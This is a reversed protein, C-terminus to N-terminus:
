RMVGSSDNGDPCLCTKEYTSYYLNIIIIHLLVRKKESFVFLYPFLIIFYYDATMLIIFFINYKQTM